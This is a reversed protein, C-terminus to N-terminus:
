KRRPLAALIVMMSFFFITSGTEIFASFIQFGARWLEPAIFYLITFGVVYLSLNFLFDKLFKM